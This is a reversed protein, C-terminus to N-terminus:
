KKKKEAGKEREAKEKAAKEEAKAKTERAKTERAKSVNARNEREEYDFLFKQVFDVSDGPQEECCLVLAETVAPMAVELLHERLPMCEQYLQQNEAIEAETAMNAATNAKEGRLAAIKSPVPLPKDVPVDVVPPVYDDSLLHGPGAFNPPAGLAERVGATTDPWEGIPHEVVVGEALNAKLFATPAGEPDEQAARWEAVKTLYGEEDEKGTYGEVREEDPLEQFRKTLEEQEATLCIVRTPLVGTQMDPPAEPDVEPPEEGEPVVPPPKVFLAEAQPKTAPFADLIWGSCAYQKQGLKWQAVSKLLEPAVDAVAVPTKVEGEEGTVLTGWEPVLWQEEPLAAAEAFAAQLDVLPLGYYSALEAVCRTKGSLPPGYVVVRSAALGHHQKFQDVLAPMNEVFGQKCQWHGTLLVDFAAPEMSSHISFFDNNELLLTEDESLTQVQGTSMADSVSALLQRVSSKGHDVALMHRCVQSVQPCTDEHLLRAVGCALDEVHIMPLVNEGESGLMPMPAPKGEWCAQFADYFMNEEGLGYLAGAVLVHTRLYKDHARAVRKELDQLESYNPHGVRRVYDEECLV